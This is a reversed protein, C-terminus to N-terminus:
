ALASCTKEISIYNIECSIFKKSLYYIASERQDLEAVQGLMYGIFTEQVALYLILLYGAM